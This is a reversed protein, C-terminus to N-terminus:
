KVGGKERRETLFSEGTIWSDMSKKTWHEGTYILDKDKVFWEPNRHESEKGAVLANVPCVAVCRLCGKCYHYDLGRNLMQERGRYTGRKFQFVMDPCTSDCLGCHICKSEDFLPLYGNRSPSLDNSAMSGALPNIGGIPANDYGWILKEDKEETMVSEQLPKEIKKVREFGATFGRINAEAMDPYKKGISEEVMRKGAEFIERKKISRLIAGFMIMNMRSGTEMAISLGDLYYIKGAIWPFKDLLERGKKRTNIVLIESMKKIDPWPYNELISDQFIGLLDPEQIPSNILIEQDERCWRIFASVPSGRKESGYSSFAAANLNLYRVGLEGLMKGCLNAGLGGFSELRIEFYEKSKM